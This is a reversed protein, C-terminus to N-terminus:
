NHNNDLLLLAHRSGSKGVVTADEEKVKKRKKEREDRTKYFEVRLEPHLKWCSEKEHRTRAYHTYQQQGNRVAAFTGPITKDTLQQSQEEKEAAIVAENFTVAKQTVIGANDREPILRHTQYFATLFTSYNPTLGSLFKNVFFCEGIRCDQDLEHIENRAKRLRAAFDSVDKCQDLTLLSYNRDLQQFIASGRPLFRQKIAQLCDELRLVPEADVLPLVEIEARANTGCRNM